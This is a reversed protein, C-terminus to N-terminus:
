QVIKSLSAYLSKPFVSAIGRLPRSGLARLVFKPIHRVLRGRRRLYRVLLVLFTEYNKQYRVRSRTYFRFAKENFPQIIGDRLARDYIPTGPFFSLFFINIRVHLPLDLLYQYTQIIDDRNEYPNDIIFDLLFNLGHTRHYPEIQHIVDTTKSMKIRRNYVNDLIRQSASQVGMQIIKLGANLLIEMKERHYSRASVAIGFPLRVKKRYKAAFDELQERPRMFFDDDGFGVLMFFDLHALTHELEDIIRDVSQFRMINRGFMATYRCNNCYSCGHPCGRSTLLYLIPINYPYSALREKLKEKTMQSLGQDLLFQDNLDYDYYPLSDLDSFPPLVENVVHTGNVNFAMNPTNLYDSGAAIRNVLEVVVQDGESFCVGDAYRLGLEPASVCHPGGWIVKMGPYTKNVFETVQVARVAYGSYVAIMVLDSKKLIEKLPELEDPEYDLPEPRALFVSKVQHNARKLLASILRSGDSSLRGSVNILAINM